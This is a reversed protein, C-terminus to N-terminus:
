ESKSYKEIKKKVEAIRKKDRSGAPESEIGKKWFEIAKEVNGMAKYVDGVHDFIEVHQGEEQKVAELLPELAEKYKKKKFLVWGLSDLYAANRKLEEPKASPNIKLREEKDLDLAKRILKEAEDLKMGHDAWIYGLDNNYTANNPEDKLLEQLQSAAKEIKKLDVYVGSLTYRIDSIFIKQQGPKLRDDKKIRAIVDEYVDAAEQYKGSERLVWGKLERSLWSAQESQSKILTDVLKMAQDFKEQKAMTRIMTRLVLMKQRELEEDGPIELFQRCALEAEKFKRNYYLVEILDSFASSLKSVSRLKLAQKSNIRYFHESLEYESLGRATRALIWTANINLSQEEADVDKTMEKAAKLLTRAHSKKKLLAIVQGEMPKQGTIDNLKLLENQVETKDEKPLPAAILIGGLLLGCILSIQLKKM